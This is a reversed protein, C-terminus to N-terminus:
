KRRKREQLTDVVAEAVAVAVMIVLLWGAAEAVAEM